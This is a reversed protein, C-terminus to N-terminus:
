RISFFIFSPSNLASPMCQERQRVDDVADADADAVAAADAATAAAADAAADAAAHEALAAALLEPRDVPVWPARPREQREFPHHPHHAPDAFCGDCLSTASCVVCRHRGGRVPLAGCGSCRVGYHVAEAGAAGRRAAARHAAASRGEGTEESPPPPFALEGWPARCWPCPLPADPAADPAAAAAAAAASRRHHKAWVQLCRRHVSNGCGDADSCWDLRGRSEDALSEMCIPCDDGSGVSRRATAAACTPATTASAPRTAAPGRRTRGRRPARGMVVEDLQPDTLGRNLLLPSTPPVRFVKLLVFLVHKCPRQQLHQQLRQQEARRCSCSHVEGIVVRHSAAEEAAGVTFSLPGNHQLIYVSSSSASSLLGDM